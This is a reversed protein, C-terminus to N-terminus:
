ACVSSASVVIIEAEAYLNLSTLERVIAIPSPLGNSLERLRARLVPHHCHPLLLSLLFSYQQLAHRQAPALPFPASAERNELLLPLLRALDALPLEGQIRTDSYM